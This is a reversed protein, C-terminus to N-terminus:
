MAPRSTMMPADNAAALSLRYDNLFVEMEALVDRREESPLGDLMRQIKKRWPKNRQVKQLPPKPLKKFVEAQVQSHRKLFARAERIPKGEIVPWTESILQPIKEPFDTHKAYEILQSAGVEPPTLSLDGAQGLKLIYSLYGRSYHQKNELYAEWTKFGLSTYGRSLHMANLSQGLDILAAALNSSMQDLKQNITEDHAFAQRMEELRDNEEVQAEAQAEFQQYDSATM